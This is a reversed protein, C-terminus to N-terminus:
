LGERKRLASRIRTESLDLYAMQHCYAGMLRSEHKHVTMILVAPVALISWALLSIPDRGLFADAVSAGVLVPVLAALDTFTRFWIPLQPASRYRVGLLRLVEDRLSTRFPSWPTTRESAPPGAELAFWLVLAALAPLIAIYRVRSHCGAAVLVSMATLTFLLLAPLIM